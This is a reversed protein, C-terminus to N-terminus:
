VFKLIKCATSSENAYSWTDCAMDTDLVYQPEERAYSHCLDGTKVPLNTM